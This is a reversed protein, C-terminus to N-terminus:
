PNALMQTLQAINKLKGPDRLQRAVPTFYRHSQLFGLQDRYWDADSQPRGLAAFEARLAIGREFFDARGLVDLDADALIEELLTRPSQPLRTAMIMNQIARVQELSYGFGPLVADTIGVGIAEHDFRQVICGIDHFWAATLLLLRAGSEVGTAMALREAAPVVDSQTHWVSHYVFVPSLEQSLRALAYGRAKEFDPSAM